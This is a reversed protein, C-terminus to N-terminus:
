IPDIVCYPRHVHTNQDPALNLHFLIYRFSVRCCKIAVDSLNRKEWKRQRAHSMVTLNLPLADVLTKELVSEFLVDDLAPATTFFPSFRLLFHQFCEVLQRAISYKKCSNLIAPLFTEILIVIKM